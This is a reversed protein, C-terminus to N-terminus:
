VVLAFLWLLKEAALMSGGEEAAIISGGEEAAVVM